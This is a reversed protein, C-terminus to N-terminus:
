ETWYVSLLMNLSQWLLLCEMALPCISGSYLAVSFVATRKVHYTPVPSM